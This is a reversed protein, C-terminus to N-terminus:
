VILYGYELAQRGEILPFCLMSLYKKNKYNHLIAETYQIDM